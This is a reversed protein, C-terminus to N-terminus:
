GQKKKLTKLTAIIAKEKTDYSYAGETKHPARFKKADKNAFLVAQYGDFVQDVFTEKMDSFEPHELIITNLLEIAHEITLGREENDDIFKAKQCKTILEEDTPTQPNEPKEPTENEVEEFEGNEDWQIQGEITSDTPLDSGEADSSPQAKHVALEKELDAIRFELSLVEGRLTLAEKKWEEKSKFQDVVFWELVEKDILYGEKLSSGEQGKRDIQNVTQLQGSAIFRRVKPPNWSKDLKEQLYVSAQKVNFHNQDQKSATKLVEQIMEDSLGQSKLTKTLKVIDM